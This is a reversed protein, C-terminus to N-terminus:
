PHLLMLNFDKLTAWQSHATIVQKTWNGIEETFGLLRFTKIADTTAIEGPRDNNFGTELERGKKDKIFEAIKVLSDGSGTGIIGVFGRGEMGMERAIMKAAITEPASETIVLTRNDPNYLDAVNFFGQPIGSYGVPGKLHKIVRPPCNEQIFRGYFNLIDGPWL